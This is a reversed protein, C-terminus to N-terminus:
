VLEIISQYSSPKEKNILQLVKESDLEWTEFKKAIFLDNIFQLYIEQNFEINSYKDVFWLAFGSEPPVTIKSHANLMLRFMSTGSRPNGLIFFPM